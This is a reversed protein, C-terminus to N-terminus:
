RHHLPLALHSQLSFAKDGNSGCVSAWFKMFHHFARGDAIAHRFTVCVSFGKNDFVTVQVTMSPALLTGDELVRPSPLTPAFPYVHGVDRPSDSVLNDFDSTTSEAVTFSVSDGQSYLIHPEHPKPPFAIKAAFPFFHQLTLSLSHKLSPLATHLFHHTSHPFDYFFIRKVPACYLWPLDLFSLPITTAPVSGSPPTVECQEIIKVTCHRWNIVENAM